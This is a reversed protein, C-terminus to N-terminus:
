KVGEWVEPELTPYALGTVPDVGNDVNPRCTGLILVAVITMMLLLYRKMSGEQRKDM